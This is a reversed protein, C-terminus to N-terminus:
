QVSPYREALIKEILMESLPRLISFQNISWGKRMYYRSLAQDFYRSQDYLGDYHSIGRYNARVTTDYEDGIVIRGLGRKRVIPLVGFLFVAVTWLRIPYEDSRVDSFDERIFPMRRLMWAFVRDSNVWVRSTNPFIERFYRYANLATFWHRGSENVFVPHVDKGLEHLLSFSLLSDKGGSSLVAHGSRKTRHFSRKGSVPTALLNEFRIRAATYRKRRVPSINAAEGVLFLNPQLIKKVLIERSTNEMMDSLFKRDIEDYLGRFVIDRCFLGYNLALQAMMMGALNSSDADGPEFVDEEFRYVFETADEKGEAFLRYPASVRRKEVRVPGVELRDFIRLDELKGARMVGATQNPKKEM